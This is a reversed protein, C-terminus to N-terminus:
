AIEVTTFNLKESFAVFIHAIMKITKVNVLYIEFGYPPNHLNKHDEWFLQGKVIIFRSKLSSKEIISEVEMIIPDCIAENQVKGKRIKQIAKTNTGDICYQVHAFFPYPSQSKAFNKCIDDIACCIWCPQTNSHYYYPM